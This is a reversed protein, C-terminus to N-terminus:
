KPDVGFQSPTEDVADQLEVLFSQSKWDHKVIIGSMGNFKGTEDDFVMAGTTGDDCVCRLLLVRGCIPANCQRTWRSGSDDSLRVRWPRVLISGNKAVGGPSAM